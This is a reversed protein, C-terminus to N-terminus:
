EKSEKNAKAEARQAIDKKMNRWPRTRRDRTFTYYTVREEGKADISVIPGPTSM